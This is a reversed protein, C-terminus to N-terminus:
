MCIVKTARPQLYLLNVLIMMVSMMLNLVQFIGVGKQSTMLQGLFAIGVSYTMAKFYVPYIKSQVIGFQHRPLSSALVYSSAFTVWVCTGYAAAFGLLHLAVFAMSMPPMAYEFMDLAVESARRSIDSM